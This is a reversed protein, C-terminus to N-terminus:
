KEFLINMLVYKKDENSSVSILYMQINIKYMGRDNESPGSGNPGSGRIHLDLLPVFSLCSFIYSCSTYWIVM